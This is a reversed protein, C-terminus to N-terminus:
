GKTKGDTSNKRTPTDINLDYDRNIKAQKEEYYLSKFRKLNDRIDKTTLNTMNRLCELVQNKNYKHGGDDFVSEWNKMLHLVAYGIKEENPKLFEEEENQELINEIISIYEYFFEKMASDEPSMQYSYKENQAIFDAQKEYSAVREMEKQEKIRKGLVYHKIITGFYSYAKTTKLTKLKSICKKSLGDSITGIFEQIDQTTCKIADKPMYEVFNGTYKENFDVTIIKKIRDNASRVPHFKEIKTHLDSLTDHMLEEFTLTHSYYQFRNIISEAMKYLPFKLKEEYIRNRTEPCDTNLYEIIAEEQEDDFYRKHKRKRGRKAM